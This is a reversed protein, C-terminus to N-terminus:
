QLVGWDRSPPAALQMSGGATPASSPATPLGLHARGSAIGELLKIANKYRTNVEETAREASLLYRTIDCTIRVLVPPTFSPTVMDYRTQLHMRVMDAADIMVPNLVADDIDAGGDRATLEVLERQGFREVMATKTVLIM